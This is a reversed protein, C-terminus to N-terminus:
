KCLGYTECLITEIEADSTGINKLDTILGLFLAKLNQYESRDILEFSYFPINDLNPFADTTVAWQFSNSDTFIPNENYLSLQSGNTEIKLIDETVNNRVFVYYLNENEVTQWKLSIKSAVLKSNDKPFEMLADGRFVGAILVEKEGKSRLEQWVYKFYSATLSSSNKKVKFNLLHNFGYTGEVHIKYATGNDDITTIVTKPSIKVIDNIGIFAGKQLLKEGKQTEIMALGSAKYVCLSDQSFLVNTFCLFCILRISLKAM